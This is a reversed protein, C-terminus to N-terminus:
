LVPQLDLKPRVKEFNYAARLVSSEKFQPGIIQLGIPLNDKAGCPLSVAPLGALSAPITYIDALYMALPDDIKEGIKFPLTPSTPTIIVDAGAFAKNFDERVLTRIKQAQLYYKDTYGHSLSFTGLMIRRKVEDGFGKDRSNLYVALLDRGKQDSFGYKIGDFRAMNSSVESPMIIYYCAVAYETHPLSVEVVEAGLSVFKEIAQRVSDGVSKEIGDIEFYEKPVGIKFGKLDGELGDSFKEVEKEPTTPDRFDKGSIKELVIAADRVDRTFFSIVDLSSAMAVVGFRSTRGYTPKFGVVNCFGAPQRTSGGTDTGLAFIAEGSAVAAAGGSSTGGPVRALDFPNKTPGFYSTEGSGGMAFQDMNNKGVLVSETLREITTASYPPIYNELIKSACTTRVGKTCFNDKASFPIGALYGFEGKSIIESDIYRAKELADKELVTIFANLKKDTKNINELVDQTVDLSSIEKKKLLEHLEFITKKALEM